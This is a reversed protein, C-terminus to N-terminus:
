FVPHHTVVIRHTDAFYCLYGKHNKSFGLFIGVRSRNAFKSLHKKSSMIWVKCGFIRFKSVDPVEGSWAEEPTRGHLAKHPLHNYLQVAYQLAFPALHLPIHAALRIARAMRFLTQMAREVVGN